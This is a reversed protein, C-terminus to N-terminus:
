RIKPKLFGREIARLRRREARSMTTQHSPPRSSPEDSAPFRSGLSLNHRFALLGRRSPQLHAIPPGRWMVPKLPPPPYYQCTFQEPQSSVETRDSVADVAGHVTAAMPESSDTPAGSEKSQFSTPGPPTSEIVDASPQPTKLGFLLADVDDADIVDVADGDIEVASLEPMLMASSNTTQVRVQQDVFHTCAADLTAVAVRVIWSQCGAAGLEMALRQPASSAPGVSLSRTVAMRVVATTDGGDPPALEDFSGV